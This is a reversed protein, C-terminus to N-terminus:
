KIPCCLYDWSLFSIFTNWLINSAPKLKKTPSFCQLSAKRVDFGDYGHFHIYICQRVQFFSLVPVILFRLLIYIFIKLPAMLWPVLSSVLVPRPPLWLMCIPSASVFKRGPPPPLQLCSFLWSPSENHYRLPLPWTLGKIWPKGRLKARGVRCAVTTSADSEYFFLSQWIKHFFQCFRPQSAAGLFYLTAGNPPNSASIDHAVTTGWM